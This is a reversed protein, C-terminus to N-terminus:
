TETFRIKDIAKFEDHQQLIDLIERTKFNELEYKLASSGVKVTLMGGDRGVVRGYEGAFIEHWLRVLAGDHSRQDLRVDRVVGKLIDRIQIKKKYVM